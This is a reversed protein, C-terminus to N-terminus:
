RPKAARETERQPCGRPGSTRPYIGTTALWEAVTAAARVGRPALSEWRAHPDRGSFADVCPGDAEAHAHVEAGNPLAWKACLSHPWDRCHPETPEGLSAAIWAVVEARYTDRLADIAARAREREEPSLRM